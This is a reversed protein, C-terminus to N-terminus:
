HSHMNLMIGVAQLRGNVDSRVVRAIRDKAQLFRSLIVNNLM